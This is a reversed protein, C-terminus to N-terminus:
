WAPSDRIGDWLKGIENLNMDLSSDVQVLPAVKFVENVCSFPLPKEEWISDVSISQGTEEDMAGDLEVKIGNELDTAWRALEHQSVATEIREVREYPGELLIGLATCLRNM